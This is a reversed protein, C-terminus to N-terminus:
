LRLKRGGHGVYIVGEFCGGRLTMWSGSPRLLIGRMFM